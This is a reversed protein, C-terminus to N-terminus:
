SLVPKETTTEKVKEAGFLREWVSKKQTKVEDQAVVANKLSLMDFGCTTCVNKKAPVHFKCRPCLYYQM